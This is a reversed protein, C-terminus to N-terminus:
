SSIRGMRAECGFAVEQGKKEDTRNGWLELRDMDRNGDRYIFGHPFNQSREELQRAVVLGEFMMLVYNLECRGSLAHSTLLFNEFNPTFIFECCLM